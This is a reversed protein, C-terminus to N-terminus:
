GGRAGPVGECCEGTGNGRADAQAKVAAELVAVMEAPTDREEMGPWRLGGDPRWGYGEVFPDVFLHPSHSALLARVEDGTM